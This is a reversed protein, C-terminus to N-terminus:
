GYEAVPRISLVEKEGHQGALREAEPPDIVFGALDPLVTAAEVGQEAALDTAIRQSMATKIDVDVPREADLDLEDIPFDWYRGAHKVTVRRFM